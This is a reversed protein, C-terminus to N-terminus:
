FEGGQLMSRQNTSLGRLKLGWAPFKFDYMVSCKLSNLSFNIMEKLDIIRIMLISQYMTIAFNQFHKYCHNVSFMLSLYRNYPDRSFRAILFRTRM